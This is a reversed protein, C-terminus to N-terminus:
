PKHNSLFKKRVQKSSSVVNIHNWMIKPDKKISSFVCHPFKMNKITVWIKHSILKPSELLAFDAM